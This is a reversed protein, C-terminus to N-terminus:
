CSSNHWSIFIIKNKCNLHPHSKKLYPLNQTTFSQLAQTIAGRHVPINDPVIQTCFLQLRSLKKFCRLLPACQISQKIKWQAGTVGTIFDPPVTHAHGLLTPQNHDAPSVHDRNGRDSCPPKVKTVTVVQMNLRWGRTSAQLILVPTEKCTCIIYNTTGHWDWLTRLAFHYTFSLNIYRQPKDALLM